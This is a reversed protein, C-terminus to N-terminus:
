VFEYLNNDLAKQHMLLGTLFNHYRHVAKLINISLVQSFSFSTYFANQDRCYSISISAPTRIVFSIACMFRFHDLAISSLQFVVSFIFCLLLFHCCCFVAFNCLRLSFDFNLSVSASLPSINISRKSKVKQQLNGNTYVYIYVNAIFRICDMERVSVNTSLM